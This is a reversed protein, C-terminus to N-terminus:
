LFEIDIQNEKVLYIYPFSDSSDSPYYIPFHVSNDVCLTRYIAWPALCMSEVICCISIDGRRSIKQGSILKAQFVEFICLLVFIYANM